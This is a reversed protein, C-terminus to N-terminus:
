RMLVHARYMNGKHTQSMTFNTVDIGHKHTLADFVKFPIAGDDDFEIIEIVQDAKVIVGPLKTEVADGVALSILPRWPGFLDPMMRKKGGGFKEITSVNPIFWQVTLDASRSSCEAAQCVLFPMIMTVGELTVSADNYSRLILMSGPSLVTTAPPEWRRPITVLTDVPSEPNDAGPCYQALIDHPLKNECPLCVVPAGSSVSKLDNILTDITPGDTFSAEERRIVRRLYEMNQKHLDADNLVGELKDVWALMTNTETTNRGIPVEAPRWAAIADMEHAPVLLVPTSWCESTMYQKWKVYIGNQRYINIAHCRQMGKMPPIDFGELAKWNWVRMLHSSSFTMGPLRHMVQQLMQGMTYFDHGALAVKFRSFIILRM